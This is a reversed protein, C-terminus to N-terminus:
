SQLRSVRLRNEGHWEVSAGVHQERHNWIQLKGGEFAPSQKLFADVVEAASDTKFEATCAGTRAPRYIQFRPSPAPEALTPLALPKSYTTNNM